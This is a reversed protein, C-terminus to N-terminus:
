EEPISIIKVPMQQARIRGDRYKVETKVSVESTDSYLSEILDIYKEEIYGRRLKRTRTLEADDADLEKYFNAFKRIRIAKPLTRNVKQIDDLILKHVEPKQSLDTFTNYALARREAWKGVTTFDISILCALYDKDRGLIVSDQIYPSFKMKSEIYQPAFKNGSTLIAMDEMRDFIVLHGDEDILGNDGAHLWGNTIASATGEPNKYYGVTLGKCRLLLEGTDCIRLETDPSPPGASEMKIDGNRHGTPIGGAETLGYMCKLNIGIALFFNYIETGVLAGGTYLVRTRLYGLWDQLPRFLLFYGIINLIRWLLNPKQKGLQFSAMKYGVPMFLRYTLRKLLGADAIKTIVMSVQSQLLRSSQIGYTIGLERLDEQVTEAKEPFNLTAGSVLTPLITIGQEGTWPLPLYSMMEDSPYLHEFELFSRTMALLGKHTFMSGKPLGTTGSTYCIMAISNEDLKEICSEFAGPHTAEYTKGLEKVEDFSITLPDDYFWLGKIDWYVLKKVKPLEDKVELIKDVQEQDDAVVFRVDSHEVVYKIESTVSDQYAGLSIGGAAQVALEAYLWEPANDGIIAVKDGPNLGLSILGLSFQKVNEYFDSWTYEIWIGFKKERIATKRDRWEEYNRQLVQPITNAEIM